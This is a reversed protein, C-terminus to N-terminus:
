LGGALAAEIALRRAGAALGVQRLGSVTNFLAVPDTSLTGAPSAVIIAAFVTEGIRRARAAEALDLWAAPPPSPSSGANWAAAPLGAWDAPAAPEGLASALMVYLPPRPAHIRDLLLEERPASLALLLRLSAEETESTM